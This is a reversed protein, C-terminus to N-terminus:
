CLEHGLGNTVTYEQAAELVSVGGCLGEAEGFLM